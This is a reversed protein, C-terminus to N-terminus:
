LSAIRSQYLYTLMRQISSKTEEPCRGDPKHDLLLLKTALQNRYEGFYEPNSEIMEMLRAQDEESLGSSGKDVLAAIFEQINKSNGTDLPHTDGTGNM